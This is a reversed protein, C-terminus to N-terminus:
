AVHSEEKAALLAPPFAPSTWGMVHLRRHLRDEDALVALVIAAKELHARMMKDLRDGAGRRRAPLLALDLVLDAEDAFAEERRPQLELAVVFQVGPKEVFAQGPRFRMGMGLPGVLRDPLDELLLPRLENRIAATEIPEVRQRGRHRLGAQYPEVVVFVRDARAGDAAGDVDVGVGIPDDDALISARHGLVRAAVASALRDVIGPMVHRNQRALRASQAVARRELVPHQRRREIPHPALEGAGVVAVPLHDFDEGRHEGVSQRRDLRSANLREGLADMRGIDDEVNQRALAIRAGRLRDM